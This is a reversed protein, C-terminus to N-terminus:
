DTVETFRGLAHGGANNVLIDIPGLASRAERCAREIQGADTVDCQIAVATRGAAQEIQVRAAELAEQGRAVIAVRAGSQAFQVATALGLGKSAGTILATRGELSIHM